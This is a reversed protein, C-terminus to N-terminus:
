AFMCPFRVKVVLAVSTRIDGRSAASPRDHVAILSMLPIIVSCSFEESYLVQSVNVVYHFVRLASQPVM